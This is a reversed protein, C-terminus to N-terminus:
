FANPIGSPEGITRAASLRTFMQHCGSNTTSHQVFHISPCTADAQICCEM